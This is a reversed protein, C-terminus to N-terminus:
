DCQAMKRFLEVVQAKGTETPLADNWQILSQNKKIGLAHESAEIMAREAKVMGSMDAQYVRRSAISLAVFACVCGGEIESGGHGDNRWGFKELYDAAITFMERYESM